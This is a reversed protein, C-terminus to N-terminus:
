LLEEMHGNIIHYAKRVMTKRNAKKPLEKLLHGVMLHNSYEMFEEKTIIDKGM